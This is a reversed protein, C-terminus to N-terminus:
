LEIKFFNNECLFKRNENPDIARVIDTKFLMTVLISNYRLGKPIDFTDKIKGM